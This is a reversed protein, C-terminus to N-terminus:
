AVVDAAPREQKIARVDRVRIGTPQLALTLRATFGDIQNLDSFIVAVKPTPNGGETIEEFHVTEAGNVASSVAGLVRGAHSQALAQHYGPDQEFTFVLGLM